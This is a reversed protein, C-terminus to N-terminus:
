LRKFHDESFHDNDFHFFNIGYALMNTPMRLLMTPWLPELLVEDIIGIIKRDIQLFEERSSVMVVPMFLQQNVSKLLELKEFIRKLYVTDVFSLSFSGQPIARIVEYNSQLFRIQKEQPTEHKISRLM